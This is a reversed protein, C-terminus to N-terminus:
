RHRGKLWWWLGAGGGGAVVVLGALIAPLPSGPAPEPDDAAEAPDETPESTSADETPATESPEQSTPSTPEPETTPSPEPEDSASPAASPTPTASQSPNATASPKASSSPKPKATKSPEPTPKKTPEPKATKSPEPKPTKSPEPKPEPEAKPPKVGPAVKGDALDQYRWGEANGQRPKSSGAGKSSYEWSGFSGDDKREAQWYSWYSTATDPKSPKGKIKYVFGGDITPDFGASKLAKVGTGYDAACKTSTGGLEGYDVVVWVGKCTAAMPLAQAATPVGSLGVLAVLGLILAAAIRRM